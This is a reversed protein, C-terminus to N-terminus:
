PPYLSPDPRGFPAILSGEINKKYFLIIKNSYNYYLYDFTHYLTGM